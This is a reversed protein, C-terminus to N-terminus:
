YLCGEFFEFIVFNGKEEEEGAREEAVVEGV